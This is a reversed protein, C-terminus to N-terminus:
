QPARRYVAHKVTQECRPHMDKATIDSATNFGHVSIDFRELRTILDVAIQM